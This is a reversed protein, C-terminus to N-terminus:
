NWSKRPATSPSLSRLPVGCDSYLSGLLDDSPFSSSFSSLEEMDSLSDEEGDGLIHKRNPKEKESSRDFKNTATCISVNSFHSGLTVDCSLKEQESGTSEDDISSVQFGESLIKRELTSLQIDGNDGRDESIILIRSQHDESGGNSLSIDYFCSDDQSDASLSRNLTAAHRVRFARSKNKRLLDVACEESFLTHEEGLERETVYPLVENNEDDDLDSMCESDEEDVFRESLTKSTGIDSASLYRGLREFSQRPIACGDPPSSNSNCSM